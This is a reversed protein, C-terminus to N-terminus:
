RGEWKGYEEIIRNAAEEPTLDGYLDKYWDSLWKKQANQPSMVIEKADKKYLDAIKKIEDINKAWFEDFDSPDKTYPKLREPSFGVKVHHTYEKGDLSTKLVCDKFGQM